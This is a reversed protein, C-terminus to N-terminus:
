RNIEFCFNKQESSLCILLVTKDAISGCEGSYRLTKEDMIVKFSRTLRYKIIKQTQTVAFLTQGVTITKFTHKCRSSELRM